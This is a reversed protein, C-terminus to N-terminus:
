ALPGDRQRRARRVGREGDVVHVAALAEDDFTEAIWATGVGPDSANALYSIPAGFDVLIEERAQVPAPALLTALTFLGASVCGRCRRIGMFPVSAGGLSWM